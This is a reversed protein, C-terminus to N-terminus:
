GPLLQCSTRAGARTPRAEVRGIRAFAPRSHPFSPQGTEEPIEEIAGPMYSIEEVCVM